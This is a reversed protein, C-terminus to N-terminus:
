LASGHSLPFLARYNWSVIAAVVGLPEYYVKSSKYFMMNSSRRSEPKLAEEGYDILYELKACTTLIEGLAADIVTIPDPCGRMLWPYLVESTKGTDRCAVRACTERNKVVWRLLSRMVRKREGFSSEAWRSKSWARRALDIKEAIDLETDAPITDLHYGTSPDFCTIYQSKTQMGALAALLANKKVPLLDANM